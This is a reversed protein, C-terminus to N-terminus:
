SLVRVLNTVIASVNPEARYVDPHSVDLLNSDREVGIFKVQRPGWRTANMAHEADRTTDGVFYDAKCTELKRWKPGMDPGLCGDFYRWLDLRDLCNVVLQTDTSTVVWLKAVEWLKPISRPVDYWLPAELTVKRKKEAYVRSAANRMALTYGESDPLITTLQDGFTEGATADYRRRIEAGAPLGLDPQSDAVETLIVEVALQRLDNMSDVLTGDFDFAVTMERM